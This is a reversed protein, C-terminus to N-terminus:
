HTQRTSLTRAIVSLLAAGFLMGGSLSADLILLTAGNFLCWITPIVLM